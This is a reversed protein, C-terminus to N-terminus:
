LRKAGEGETAETTQALCHEIEWAELIGRAAQTWGQPQAFFGVRLAQLILRAKEDGKSGFCLLCACLSRAPNLDSREWGVRALRMGQLWCPLLGEPAARALALSLEPSESAFAEAGSSERASIWLSASAVLAGRALHDWQPFRACLRLASVMPEPDSRLALPDPFLFCPDAGSLLLAALLAADAETLERPAPGAALASLALEALAVTAPGSLPPPLRLFEGAHPWSGPETSM